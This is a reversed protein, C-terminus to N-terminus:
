HIRMGKRQLFIENWLIFAYDKFYLTILRVKTFDDWDLCDLNQIVERFNGKILSWSNKKIVDHIYPKEHRRVLRKVRDDGGDNVDNGFM